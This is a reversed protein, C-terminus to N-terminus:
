KEDYSVIRVIVRNPLCVITEGTNSIPAHDACIQNPCDAETVDATKDSITVQVINGTFGPVDIVTDRSLPYTGVIQGDVSIEAAVPTGSSFIGVLLFSIAALFLVTAFIFIDRRKFIRGPGSPFFSGPGSPSPSNSM